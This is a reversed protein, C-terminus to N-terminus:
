ITTHSFPRILLRTVNGCTKSKSKHQQIIQFQFFFVSFFNKKFCALFFILRFALVLLLNNNNIKVHTRYFTQCYLRPATVLLFFFFFSSVKAATQIMRTFFFSQFNKDFNYIITSGRLSLVLHFEMFTNAFIYNIDNLISARTQGGHTNLCLRSKNPLQPDLTNIKDFM